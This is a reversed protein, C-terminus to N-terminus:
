YGERFTKNQRRGTRSNVYSGIRGYVSRATDPDGYRSHIYRVFGVAENFADGIGNVGDPYFIKVNSSLLQGLGTATSNGLYKGPLDNRAATWILPWEEPKGKLGTIEVPDRGPLVQYTYNPIGVKGGSEKNLIYHTSELTAWEEPLSSHRLARTLLDVAKQTNPEYIEGKFSTDTPEKLLIERLRRGVELPAESNFNKDALPTVSSGDGLAIPEDLTREIIEGGSFTGYDFFCKVKAGPVIGDVQDADYFFLPFQDILIVDEPTADYTYPDFYIDTPSAVEGMRPLIKVRAARYNPIKDIGLINDLTRVLSLFHSDNNEELDEVRLVIGTTELKNGEYINRELVATSLRSQIDLSTEFRTDVYNGFNTRIGSAYGYAQSILELVNLKNRDRAM